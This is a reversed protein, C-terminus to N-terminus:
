RSRRRRDSGRQHSPVPSKTKPAAELWYEHVKVHSNWAARLFYGAIPVTSARRRLAHGLIKARADADRGDSILDWAPEGALATGSLIEKVRRREAIGGPLGAWREVLDIWALTEADRADLLHQNALMKDIGMVALVGGVLGAWRPFKRHEVDASPCGEAIWRRMVVLQARLIEFRRDLAWNIPNRRGIPVAALQVLVSRLALERSFSMLTGTAIWLSTNEVVPATSSRIQRDRTYRSTKISALADGAFTTNVNDLIHVASPDRLLAFLTRRCETTDTMTMPTVHPESGVLPAAITQALTTKGYNNDGADIAFFPTLLDGHLAVVHPTFVAALANAKSSADSFVFGAFVDEILLKAADAVQRDSPNAPIPAVGGDLHLYLKTEEDYGQRDVVRGTSTLYPADVIGRLHPLDPGPEGAVARIVTAPPDVHAQSRGRPRVWDYARMAIEAVAAQDIVEITPAGASWDLQCLRRETATVYLKPTVANAQVLAARVLDIQEARPTADVDIARKTM